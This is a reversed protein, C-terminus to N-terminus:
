KLSKERLQAAASKQGINKAGSQHEIVSRQPIQALRLKDANGDAVQKGAASPTASTKEEEERSWVVYAIVVFAGAVLMNRPTFLQSM